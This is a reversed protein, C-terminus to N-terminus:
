LIEAQFRKLGTLFQDINQREQQVQQEAESLAGRKPDSANAPSEALSKGTNILQSQYYTICRMKVRSYKRVCKKFAFLEELNPISMM